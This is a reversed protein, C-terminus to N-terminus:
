HAAWTPVPSPKTTSALAAKAAQTLAAKADDWGISKPWTTLLAVAFLHGDRVVGTTNLVRRGASSGWGQKALLPHVEEAAVGFFQGFGDAAHESIGGLAETLFVREDSDLESALYRYVTTVDAPSIRTDGWQGPDEPPRTDALGLAAAQRRVIAPGGGESWMRSAVADDSAALMRELQEAGAGGPVGSRDLRDLAILLKVVSASPTAAHEKWSLVEACDDLDVVSMGLVPGAGTALLAARAKEIAERGRADPEAAAVSDCHSVVDDGGSGTAIVVTVTVAVVAALVLLIGKRM